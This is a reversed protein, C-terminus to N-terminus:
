RERPLNAARKKLKGIHWCKDDLGYYADVRSEPTGGGHGSRIAQAAAVAEERTYSVKEYHPM